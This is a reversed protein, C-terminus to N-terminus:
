HQSACTAFTQCLTYLHKGTDRVCTKIEAHKLVHQLPVMEAIELLVSNLLVFLQVIRIAQGKRM